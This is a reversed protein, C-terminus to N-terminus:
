IPFCPVVCSPMSMTLHNLRVVKSIMPDNAKPSDKSPTFDPQYLGASLNVVTHQRSTPFNWKQISRTVFARRCPASASKKDLNGNTAVIKLVSKEPAISERMRSVFICSFCVISRISLHAVPVLLFIRPALLISKLRTFLVVVLGSKRVLIRSCPSSFSILLTCSAAWAESKTYTQM